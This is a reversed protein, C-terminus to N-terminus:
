NTQEKAMKELTQYDIKGSQTFPLSDIAQISCPWSYNPLEHKIAELLENIVSESNQKNDRLVVFAVAVHMKEKDPIVVVANEKISDFGSIFTEIRQPFLKYVVKEDDMTLASRKIRGTIYCFGNEDVYGVDGTHM